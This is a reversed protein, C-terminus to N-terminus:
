MVVASNHFPMPYYRRERFTTPTTSSVHCINQGDGLLEDDDCRNSDGGAIRTRLEMAVATWRQHFCLRMVRHTGAGRRAPQARMTYDDTSLQGPADECTLTKTHVQM